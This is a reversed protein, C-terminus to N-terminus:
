ARGATRNLNAQKDGNDVTSFSESKSVCWSFYIFLYIAACAFCVRVTRTRGTRYNSRGNKSSLGSNSNDPQVSCLQCRATQRDASLDMLEPQHVSLHLSQPSILLSFCEFFDREAMSLPGRIQSPLSISSHSCPRGHVFGWRSACNLKLTLSGSILQCVSERQVKEENPHQM